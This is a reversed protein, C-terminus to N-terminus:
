KKAGTNCRALAAEDLSAYATVEGVIRALSRCAQWNAADRGATVQCSAEACDWITTEIVLRRPKPLPTSLTATVAQAQAAGALALSAVAAAIALPSKM